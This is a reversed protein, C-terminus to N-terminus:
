HKHEGAPAAGAASSGAASAGPASTSAPLKLELKSDVGKADKFLLTVPVTSGPAVPQKLDMLMVHYGGPKLDVAVGAPLDLAPVARMKMVDGDMKMEHVEAVGAVPSSVGVLRTGAKATLRMFAGTGKQGQVTSRVWAGAAEVPQGAGQVAMVPVMASSGLANAMGPDVARVQLLAAPSKLGQTATGSAPIDSWDNRGVACTQLVKFWMPGADAPLKGRLTFEDFSSEPLAAGKSAAAWSVKSVDELVSKGHNDYPKALAARQIDVKWGAKPVPKAGQFGPPIQVSVGTTPSGDCGHGVQFVAKYMAGPEASKTELVIHGFTATTVTAISAIAISKIAIKILSHKTM